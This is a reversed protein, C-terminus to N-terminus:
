GFQEFTRLILRENEFNWDTPTQRESMKGEPLDATMTLLYNPEKISDFVPWVKWSKTFLNPIEQDMM